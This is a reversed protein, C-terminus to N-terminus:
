IATKTKGLTSFGSEVCTHTIMDMDRGGKGLVLRERERRGGGGGEIKQREEEGVEGGSETAICVACM